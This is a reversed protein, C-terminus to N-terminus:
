TALVHEYLSFLKEEERDWRYKELVARRGNNGMRAVEDPRRNLHRIAEAIEDPRSEDVCIGCQNEEIFKRWLPFNSAIVPVGASMYEFMKIPQSNLFNAVGHLTVLGCFSRAMIESVRKRGVYGFEQVRKWGDYRMVEARLADSTFTGALLLRADALEIAQVIERIGRIADIGGVYCASERPLGGESGQMALEGILPYNNIVAVKKAAGEFVHSIGPTAAVVAAFRAAGARELGAALGSVLPRVRPSVWDKSMVEAPLDEHADFIVRKGARALLLGFPILEPDHIHYVNADLKRAVAYCRWAHMSMRSLRKLRSPAQLPHLTVSRDGARAVDENTANTVLHTDYGAKALSVCEKHFIRVDLGKHVSSMHCVRQRM